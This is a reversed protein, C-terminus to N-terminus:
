RDSRCSACDVRIRSASAGNSYAGSIGDRDGRYTSDGLLVKRRSVARDIANTKEDQVRM